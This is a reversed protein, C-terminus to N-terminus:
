QKMESLLKEIERREECNRKIIFVQVNEGESIRIRGSGMQRKDIRISPNKAAKEFLLKLVKFDEKSITKDIPTGGDYDGSSSHIKDIPSYKFKNKSIFYGNGSGDSYQLTTM